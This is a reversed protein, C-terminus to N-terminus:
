GLNVRVSVLRRTSIGSLLNEGSKRARAFMAILQQHPSVPFGNLRTFTLTAWGDSGTPQEAPISLQNFPVATAYVLAGEVPRSGCATVHFRAVLQNTGNTVVNPSFQIQDILLRAPPSLQSVNAGGTGSPCGTPAPAPPAPPPPPPAAAATIVATNDSTARTTGDGNSAEVAFRLTNGVDASGLKYTLSHAGSINSCDGGGKNCRRWFYNFDTPNNTWTGQTATLTQGEQPTGSITPPATNQPKAASAAVSNGVLVGLAAVLALMAGAGIVGGLLLRRKQTPHAM